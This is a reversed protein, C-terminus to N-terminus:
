CSRIWGACPLEGGNGERIRLQSGTRLIARRFTSDVFVRMAVGGSAGGSEGDHWSFGVGCIILAVFVVSRAPLRRLVALAGVKGDCMLNDHFIVALDTKM